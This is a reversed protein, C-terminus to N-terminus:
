PWTVVKFINLHRAGEICSNNLQGTQGDDRLPIDPCRVDSSSSSCRAPTFLKGM